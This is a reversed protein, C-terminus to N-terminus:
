ILELIFNWHKRLGATMFNKNTYGANELFLFKKLLLHLINLGFFPAKVPFSSFVAAFSNRFVMWKSLGLTITYNVWIGYFDYIKMCNWLSWEQFWEFLLDDGVRFDRSPVAVSIFCLLHFFLNPAKSITCWNESLTILLVLNSRHHSSKTCKTFKFLQQILFTKEEGVIYM